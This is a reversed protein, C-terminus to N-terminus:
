IISKTKSSYDPTSLFIINSPMLPLMRVIFLLLVTKSMFTAMAQWPIGYEKEAKEYASRNAEIASLQEESWVTEGAYNQNNGATVDSSSSAGGSFSTLAKYIEDVWETYGTFPHVGSPDGAYYEDKAISVWDAVRVNSYKQEAEALAENSSKIYKQIETNKSTMYLNAFVIKTNKGALEVVEDIQDSSIGGNGGLAFVLYPRLKNEKVIGELIQIGGPNDSSLKSVWKSGKAYSTASQDGGVGDKKFDGLDVGPLKKSILNGGLNIEAGESYSDGIWTVNKGLVPLVASTDCNSSPNYFLINNQSYLDLLESSLDAYVGCPM